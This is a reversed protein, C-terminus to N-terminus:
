GHKSERNSLARSKAQADDALKQRMEEMARNQEFAQARREHAAISRICVLAVVGAVLVFVFFGFPASANVILDHLLSM